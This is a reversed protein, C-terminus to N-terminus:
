RLFAFPVGNSSRDGLLRVGHMYFSHAIIRVVALVALLVISVIVHSSRKGVSSQWSGLWLIVFAGLFALSSIVVSAVSWPLPRFIVPQGLIETRYATWRAIEKEARNLCVAIGKCNDKLKTWINDLNTLQNLMGNFTTEAVPRLQKEASPDNVLYDKEVNYKENLQKLKVVFEKAKADTDQLSELVDAEVAQDAPSLPSVKRATAAISSLDSSADASPLVFQELLASAEGDGSSVLDAM